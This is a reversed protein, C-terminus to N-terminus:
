LRDLSPLATSGEVWAEFQVRLQRGRLRTGYVYMCVRVCYVSDMAMAAGCVCM